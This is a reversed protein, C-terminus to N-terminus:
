IGGTEIEMLKREVYDAMRREVDDEFSQSIGFWERAPVRGRSTLWGGRLFQYHDHEYAPNPIYRLFTKRMEIIPAIVYAMYAASGVVMRSRHVKASYSQSLPAWMVGEPDVGLDLNQKISNKLDDVVGSEMWFSEWSELARFTGDANRFKRTADPSWRIDVEPTPFGDGM